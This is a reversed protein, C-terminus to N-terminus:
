FQSMNNPKFNRVSNTSHPPGYNFNQNNKNPLINLQNCMNQLTLQVQKLDAGVITNQHKGNVFFMFTPLGKIENKYEIEHDQNNKYTENGLQQFDCKVVACQPSNFMKALEFYEGKTQKCPGCWNAYFDVCCLVHSNIVSALNRPEVSISSDDSDQKNSRNGGNSGYSEYTAYM